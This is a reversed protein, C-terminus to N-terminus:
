LFELSELFLMELWCRFGDDGGNVDKAVQVGVCCFGDDGAQDGDDRVM